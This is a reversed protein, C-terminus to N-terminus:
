LLSFGVHFVHAAAAINHETQLGVCVNHDQGKVKQGWFLHTEMSCQMDLRAIRAADAKSIDDSFCVSM